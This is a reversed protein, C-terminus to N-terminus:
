DLERLVGLRASVGLGGCDAGRVEEGTLEAPVEPRGEDGVGGPPGFIAM